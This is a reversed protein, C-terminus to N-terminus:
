SERESITFLCVLYQLTKKWLIFRFEMITVTEKVATCRTGLVSTKACHQRVSIKQSLSYYEKQILVIWYLDDVLWMHSLM